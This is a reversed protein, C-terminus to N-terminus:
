LIMQAMNLVYTVRPICSGAGFYRPSIISFHFPLASTHPSFGLTVVHGRKFICYVCCLFNRGCSAARGKFHMTVIFYFEHADSGVSEHQEPERWM